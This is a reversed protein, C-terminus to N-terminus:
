FRFYMNVFYTTGYGYWYKNGFLPKDRERDEKLKQYNANRPQEFGGSRFVKDLVNNLSVFFGLYNQKLRWSKGGVANVLIYEEFQEQSLLQRAIDEDYDQYPLGDWDLGFNATRTLPNIDAFGHSFYNVSAGFWWFKPDRYEFGLQGVREPGNGVHYNRLYAKGYNVPGEFGTSTLYLNPDNSYLYEGIATAAKLSITSTLKIEAGMELGLNRTAVDTLVQQVFASTNNSGLGSLGDAYYYSIETADSIENFYGSIRLKIRNSRFNYSIDMSRIQESELGKVTTNNQRSNVFVSALDPAESVFAMNASLFHRGNLKYTLGAKVGFDTFELTESKGLSNAPYFGNQFLGNRFYTSYGVQLGAYFDFNTYKFQAQAFADAKDAFLEYNYKYRDGEGAIHNLNQLDSQAIENVPIGDQAEAFLDIDLFGSGGLLDRIEGFNESKLHRYNFVANLSINEKLLFRLISNAQIQTDDTRDEALAYVSNGSGNLNAAYLAGWDLQGNEVFYEQALYAAEYNPTESLRLFYSPLKQYYAPDPNSGGGLYTEQSNLVALRTGGYDIRTNAVEGFQWVLNTNIELRQSPQWFHNLMLVPEKVERLRSNRIEGDQHGWYSNYSYGKLKIVEETNPSSKGRINPTYFAAFNLSHRGNLKKELAAFFSNADYLTGDIYAEEAFRRSASVSYYWGGSLEGSNYTGMLRGTYSRNAASVSIRGGPSYQSARMIINTTGAIGGFGEQAPASGMYFIQNRQVDNLGGWNAWQPRGNYLKNMEVGNIMLSGYESGLGRPRFFSQSFDYAAANLFVDRSSQLLGAINDFGSEEKNLDSEPLSINGILMQQNELDPQMYILDLDKVEGAKLTVPIRQIEFGSKSVVLILEGEPLLESSFNFWGDSGSTTEIVINDTTIVAGAVPTLSAADVLTGTVATEQACIESVCSAILFILLLRKM